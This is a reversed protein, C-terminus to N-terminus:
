MGGTGFGPNPSGILGESPYNTCTTGAYMMCIGSGPSYSGIQNRGFPSGALLRSTGPSYVLTLIGGSAFDWIYMYFNQDCTCKFYFTLMGGFYNQASTTAPFSFLSLLSILVLVFITKKFKNM